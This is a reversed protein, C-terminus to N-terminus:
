PRKSFGYEISEWTERIMKKSYWYYHHKDFTAKPSGNRKHYNKRILRNIFNKAAKIALVKTEAADKSEAWDNDLIKCIYAKRSIYADYQNDKDDYDIVYFWGQRYHKWERNLLNIEQRHKKIIKM